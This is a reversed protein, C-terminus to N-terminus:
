IQGPFFQLDNLTVKQFELVFKLFQDDPQTRDVNWKVVFLEWTNTIEKNEAIYFTRVTVNDVRHIFMTSLCEYTAQPGEGGPSSFTDNRLPNNGDYAFISCYRNVAFIFNESDTVVQTTEKFIFEEKPKVRDVKNRLTFNAELVELGVYSGRAWGADSFSISTNDKTVTGLVNNSADGNFENIFVDNQNNVVNVTLSITASSSSAGAGSGGSVTMTLKDTAIYPRYSLPLAATSIIYPVHPIEHCIYNQQDANIDSGQIIIVYDMNITTAVTM